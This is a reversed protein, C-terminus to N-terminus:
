AQGVEATCKGSTIRPYCDPCRPVRMTRHTQFLNDLPTVSMVANLLAPRGIQTLIRVVESAVLSAALAAFPIAEGLPPTQGAPRERALGEQYASEEIAFGQMSAERLKMCTFCASEYPRVYPGIDIRSGDMTARLWPRGSDLSVRNVEAFFVDPAHCTATLFLDTEEAWDELCARARLASTTELHLTERPAVPMGAMTGLFRGEDDWDLVRISRCGSRTLLDYVAAGFMGKGILVLSANELRTQAESASGAVQTHGVNRGWFLLQRRLAEDGEVSRGHTSLRTILGKTHLLSLTRLLTVRPLEPPCSNLIEDVTHAGDLVPRLFGLAAAAHKGRVLVPASPGRFQFGLGDPLEFLVVDNILQPREPFRLNPDRLLRRLASEPELTTAV